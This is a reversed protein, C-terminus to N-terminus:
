LTKLIKFLKFFSKIDSGLINQFIKIESLYILFSIKNAMKKLRDKTNTNATLNMYKDIIYEYDIEFNTRIKVFSLLFLLFDRFKLTEIDITSDFSEELDIIFIKGDKYTFNRTQSGGHFFENKHIKSLEELMFDVYYYLAEESINKRILSHLTKGCDELVFFDDCKYVVKPTNIGLNRFKELKSTEYDLAEFATKPSSPILLELPFFRYFFKQIKNPKTQRAKKLWYRKHEFEIPFIESNNLLFEKKAIEELSSVKKRKM